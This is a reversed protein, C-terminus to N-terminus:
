IHAVVQAFEEPLLTWFGQHGRCPVPKQLMVTDELEWAFRASEWNGLMHDVIGLPLAKETPECSVVTTVAVIAGYPLREHWGVGFAQSVYHAANVSIDNQGNLNIRHKAAHIALIGRHETSWSRTEHNKGHGTMSAWPQWLSLARLRQLLKIQDLIRERPGSM